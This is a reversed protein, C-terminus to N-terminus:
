FRKDLVMQDNNRTMQFRGLFSNGLLVYPMNGTSVMADVDYVVVDGLRLSALKIRWAPVVGNATNLSAAQGSKYNLGIRLAEAESLSVFTAGTDVLLTVSRGNIQGTTQFHGGSGVPLVIKRGDSASGAAGASSSTAEGLRLMRRKGGIDVEAQSGQLSILKVAGLSEGVAVGRPAGGDVVLLAKSGLVGALTVQQAVVSTTLLLAGVGTLVAFWAM